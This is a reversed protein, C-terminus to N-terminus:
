DRGGPQRGKDEPGPEQDRGAEEEPAAEGSITKTFDSTMKKIEHLPNELQSGEETLTRTFDSGIKKFERVAKGVSRGIESMRQPGFIAMAVVLIVIVELTGLGM